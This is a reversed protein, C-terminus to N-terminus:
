LKDKYEGMEVEVRVATGQPALPLPLDPPVDQGDVRIRRVGKQVGDPNTVRIEYTAGRFQRTM